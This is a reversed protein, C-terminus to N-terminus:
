KDLHRARFLHRAKGLHRVKGLLRVKIEHSAKDLHM